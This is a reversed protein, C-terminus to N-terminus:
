VCAFVATYSFHSPGVFACVLVDFLSFFFFKHIPSYFTLHFFFVHAPM